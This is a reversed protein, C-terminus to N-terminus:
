THAVHNSAPAFSPPPRRPLHTDRECLYSLSPNLFLSFSSITAALGPVRSLSFSIFIYRSPPLLWALLVWCCAPSYWCQRSTSCPRGIGNISRPTFFLFFSSLFYFLCSSSLISTFSLPILRNDKERKMMRTQMHRDIKEEKKKTWWREGRELFIKHRRHHHHHRHRNLRARLSGRLSTFKAPIFCLGISSRWSRPQRTYM